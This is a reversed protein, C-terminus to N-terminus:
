PFTGRTHQQGGPPQSEVLAAIGYMTATAVANARANSLQKLLENHELDRKVRVARLMPNGIGRHRQAVPEEIENIAFELLEAKQLHRVMEEEYTM